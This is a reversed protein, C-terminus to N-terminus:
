YTSELSRAALEKISLSEIRDDKHFASYVKLIRKLFELNENTNDGFNQPHFWLHFIKGENAAVEIGSIVRRLRFTEGLKLRKNYPRLFRSSPVKCPSINGIDQLQFTNDGSISIYADSLRIARKILNEDPINTHRYCWANETTRYARIGLNRCIPIYEPNIQNRPFVLSECNVDYQQAIDIAAKLDANFSNMDQGEELAYYHSFTHSAIEQNPCARIQEVLTPAFHFPDDEESEGIYKIYEYPSLNKNVYDPKIDPLSALLQDRSNCFLFGVIAWTAHINYESFLDLIRPIAVRTGMLREKYYALPKKDRFGWYLEFDLSIVLIGKTNRM